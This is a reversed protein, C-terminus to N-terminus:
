FSEGSEYSPNLIDDTEAWIKLQALTGVAINSLLVPIDISGYTEVTLDSNVRPQYFIELDNDGHGFFYFNKNEMLQRAAFNPAGLYVLNSFKAELRPIIEEDLYFDFLGIEESLAVEDDLINLKNLTGDTNTNYNTYSNLVIPKGLRLINTFSINEKEFVVMNKFIPENFKVKYSLLNLFYLFNIMAGGYGVIVLDINKEKVKKMWENIKKLDDPDDMNIDLTSKIYKKVENISYINDKKPNLSVPFKESLDPFLVQFNPNYINKWKKLIKIKKNRFFNFLAKNDAANNIISNNSYRMRIEEYIKDWIKLTTIRSM